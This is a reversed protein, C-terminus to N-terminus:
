SPPARPISPGVTPPDHACAEVPEFPAPVIAVACHIPQAQPLAFPALNPALTLTFTDLSRASAHDDDAELHVGPPDEPSDVVTYFHAHIESAHGDHSHVHEFPALCFATLLSCCTSVAAACRM